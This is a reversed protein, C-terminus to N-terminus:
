VVAEFLNAQEFAKVEVTVITDNHAGGHPVILVERLEFGRTVGFGASNWGCSIAVGGVRLLPALGDRVSKYLAANQTEAMGVDRGVSRYVESIQRPSYPPDFLVADAVVGREGMLSCFEVADLHYDTPQEPDLDNRLTGVRSSRAFPDIVTACGVLWRAMLAAVPPIAFTDPSPMAWERSFAVSM